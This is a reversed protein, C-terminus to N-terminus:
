GDAPIPPPRRGDGRDEVSGAQELAARAAERGEDALGLAGLETRRFLLDEETVAMERAVAYRLHAMVVPAGNAVRTAGDPGGLAWVDPVASAYLRATHRAIDEAPAPDPGAGGDAEAGPAAATRRRRPPALGLGVERAGLELADRAVSLASTFKPTAVSVHNRLGSPGAGALVPRESLRAPAGPASTAPVWGEHVALVDAPDLRDGPWVRDAERVMREVAEERGPQEGVPHHATGIMTRGRWPVFFRRGDRGLGVASGLGLSPLLVNVSYSLPRSVAERRAGLMEAVDGLGAGTANVFLRARLEGEEGGVGDRWRVAELGGDRVEASVAEVHNAVVAGLGEATRVLELVLRETSYVIGDDFEFAGGVSELGPVAAAVGSRGVSRANPPARGHGPGLVLNTAAAALLPLVPGRTPALVRLPDVLGPALSRWEVLARRGARGALPRGRSLARVGGHLIRLNNGSAGAGFDTRDILAVCQGRLAAERAVAAGLVGAGIM